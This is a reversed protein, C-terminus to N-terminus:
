RVLVLKRAEINGLAEIRAFYVGAAAPRGATDRGSWFARHSGAERREDVLTRVLRGAADYIGIRVDSPGALSYLLTVSPNFPNPYARLALSSARPATGDAATVTELCIEYVRNYGADAVYLRRGPIDIELCCPNLTIFGDAVRTWSGTHPNV